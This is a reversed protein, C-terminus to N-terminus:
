GHKDPDSPMIRNNIISNKILAADSPCPSHHEQHVHSDVPSRESSNSYHSRSQLM